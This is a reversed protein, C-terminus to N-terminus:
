VFYLKSYGQKEIYLLLEERDQFTEVPISKGNEIKYLLISNGGLKYIYENM